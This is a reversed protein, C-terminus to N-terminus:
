RKSRRWGATMAEAESCFWREGKAETIKTVNYYKQGPVHYIRRRKSIHQRQYQLRLQRQWDCFRHRRRKRMTAM